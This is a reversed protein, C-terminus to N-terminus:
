LTAEQRWWLGGGAGVPLGLLAALAELMALGGSSRRALTRLTLQM